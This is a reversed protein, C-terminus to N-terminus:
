MMGFGVLSGSFSGLVVLWAQLGGEPYSVETSNSVVSIADGGVDHAENKQGHVPASASPTQHSLCRTIIQEPPDSPPISFEVSPFTNIRTLQNRETILGPTSGKPNHTM